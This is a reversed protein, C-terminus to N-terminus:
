DMKNSAQQQVTPTKSFAALLDQAEAQMPHEKMAAISTLIPIKIADSRKLTDTMFISLLQPHLKGELLPGSILAHTSDNVYDVAAHAVARQDDRNKFLPMMQMLVQAKQIATFSSNTIYYVQEYVAATRNSAVLAIMEPPLPLFEAPKASQAVAMVEAKAAPAATPAPVTQTEPAKMEAHDPAPTEQKSCGSALSLAIGLALPLAFKMSSTHQKMQIM